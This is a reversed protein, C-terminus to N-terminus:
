VVLQTHIDYEVPKHVLFPCTTQMKNQSMQFDIFQIFTLYNQDHLKVYQKNLSHVYTLAGFKGKSKRVIPCMVVGVNVYFYIEKQLRWSHPM